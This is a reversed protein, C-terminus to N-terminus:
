TYKNIINEYKGWEITRTIGERLSVQPSYGLENKAKDISYAWNFRETYKGLLFARLMKIAEKLFFYAKELSTLELESLDRGLERSILRALERVTVIETGALTYVGSAQTSFGAKLIGDVADDIYVPHWLYINRSKFLFLKNKNLIAQSIPLVFSLSGPGYVNGLRLIVANIGSDQAFRLVEREGELKSEGYVNIPRSTGLENYPIERKTVPGFAEISSIYVFKKIRREVSFRLINSTGEKNVKFLYERAAQYDICAASHILIDISETSPIVNNLTLYDSVDIKYFKAKNVLADDLKKEGRALIIVKHGLEIFKKALASGIFGTGGTILINMRTSEDKNKGM